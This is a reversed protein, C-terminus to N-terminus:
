NLKVDKLMEAIYTNQKDSDKLEAKLVKEAIEVSLTGVSNKLESIAAVKENEIVAKASAIMKDAEEKASNKADSVINAKIDRAEKLMEDREARAEKLIRENDAQLNAMEKRANEASELAEKISEERNKVAGLIPSWAFKKLLLMLILFSITTWFILGIQPTVLEM